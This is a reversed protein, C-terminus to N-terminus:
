TVRSTPAAQQKEEYDHVFKRGSMAMTRCSTIAVFPWQAARDALSSMASRVVMEARTKERIEAIRPAVESSPRVFTPALVALPFCAFRRRVAAYGPNRTAPRAWRCYRGNSLCAIRLFPSQVARSKATHKRPKM